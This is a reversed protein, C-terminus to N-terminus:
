NIKKVIQQYLENNEMNKPDKDIPIVQCSKFFLSYRQKIDLAHAIIPFTHQKTRMIFVELERPSLSDYTEHAALQLWRLEPPILGSRFIGLKQKYEEAQNISDELREADRDTLNPWDM